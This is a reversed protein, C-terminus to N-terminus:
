RHAGRGDGAGRWAHLAVQLKGDLAAGGGAAGDVQVVTRAAPQRQQITNNILRQHIHLLAPLACM